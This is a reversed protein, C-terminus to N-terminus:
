IILVSERGIGEEDEVAVVAEADEVVVLCLGGFWCGWFWDVHLEDEEKKLKSGDESSEKLAVSRATIAVVTGSSDGSSSQSRSSNSGV